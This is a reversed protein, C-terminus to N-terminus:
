LKLLRWKNSIALSVLAKDANGVVCPNGVLELFYKDSIHDGYAYCNEFDYGKEEIYKEVLAGKGKALSQTILEGTYVGSVIELTNCLAHRVKLDNMMPKLCPLFAGTVFVVEAGARQHQGIEQIVSKNYFEPISKDRFWSFGIHNLADPNEGKFIQYYAKNAQLRGVEGEKLLDMLHSKVIPYNSVNGIVEFYYELFSLLTKVSVVTQDVDFFAAYKM